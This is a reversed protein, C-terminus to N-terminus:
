KLIGLTYIVGQDSLILVHARGASMKKVRFDEPFDIPAPYLLVELPKNRKREHYGLQSDTNIGTGFVHEGIRTFGHNNHSDLKLPASEVNLLLLM